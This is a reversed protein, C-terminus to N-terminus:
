RLLMPQVHMMCQGGISAVLKPALQGAVQPGPDLFSDEDFGVIFAPVAADVGVDSDDLMRQGTRKACLGLATHGRGFRDDNSGGAVGDGLAKELDDVGRGAVADHRHDLEDAGAILHRAFAPVKVEAFLTFHDAGLGTKHLDIQSPRALPAERRPHGSEEPLVVRGIQDADRPAPFPALGFDVRERQGLPQRRNANRKALGVGVHRQVKLRQDVLAVFVAAVVRDIIALGDLRGEVRGVQGPGLLPQSGLPHSLRASRPRTADPWIPLAGHPQRSRVAPPCVTGRRAQDPQPQFMVRDFAFSDPTKTRAPLREM